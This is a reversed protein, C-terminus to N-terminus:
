RRGVKHQEIPGSMQVDTKFGDLQKPIRRELEPTREDSYVKVCPQGDCDGVGVGVVGPLSLLWAEHREKVAMISDSSKDVRGPGRLTLWGVLGIIIIAVLTWKWRMRGSM